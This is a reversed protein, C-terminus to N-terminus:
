GVSPIKLVTGGDITTDPDIYDNMDAILWYLLPTGYQQLSIVYLTSKKNIVVEYCPTDKSLRRYRGSVTNGNKDKYTPVSKYRDLVAM